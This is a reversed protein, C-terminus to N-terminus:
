WPAYTFRDVATSSSYILLTRQAMLVVKGRFSSRSASSRLRYHTSTLWLFILFAGLGCMGLGWIFFSLGLTAVINSIQFEKTIQAYTMTYM